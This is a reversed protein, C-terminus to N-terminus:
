ASARGSSGPGAGLNKKYIFVSVCHLV